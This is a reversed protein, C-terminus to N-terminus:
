FSNWFHEWFNSMMLIVLIYTWPVTKKVKTIVFDEEFWDTIHCKAFINKIKWIRVHDSIKIYISPNVVVPKMKITSHYTNNCKNIKDDLKKIYMNKSTSDM